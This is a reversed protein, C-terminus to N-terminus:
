VLLTGTVEKLLLTASIYKTVYYIPENHTSHGSFLIAINPCFSQIHKEKVLVQNFYGVLLKM